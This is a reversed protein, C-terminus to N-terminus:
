FDLKLSVAATRSAGLWGGWGGSVGAIYREDLLNNVTFRVEYGNFLDGDTKGQIAVYLDMVDYADIRQTNAPDIWREGVHKNSLGARYQEKQWNASVVYMDEVSGYVTNGTYPAFDLYTSDNNTYSAYLSWNSNIFWNASLEIGDSEIGGVNIFDGVEEELFDIGTSDNDLQTIRNDFDVQYYTFTARLKEGNYRVGIDKNKATEPELGDVATPNNELDAQEIVIDKIAAYNEAYGAFVEVSDTIGWVIGTNPLFDSDSSITQSNFGTIKDKKEVDVYWQKGGIRISLDGIQITDELYYMFTEYPYERDYTIWYPTNDFDYSTRSDIIKHWDRSEERTRDEYWLGVRVENAIGQIETSWTLDSTFGFRQMEYHTHRYSGVPIANSGYCAPDAAPNGSTGGYPFTLSTQCNTAPTLANGNADVFYIKGLDSGGVVTNGSILESNGNTDNTVDVVYPPLWDGRGENDHYYPTVQLNVSSSLAFDFKVYALTNERLTSWGRRYLQDVFPIGTWDGTLRDWEDNQKYESLTVRQYNDEHTDDYSAYGTIKLSELETIFKGALHTRNSEGSEDIWANANADSYSLYATTNNFLLGTDYRVYFKQANFDGTTLNVRLGEEAKPDQTIFDLTGGLAEHSRSAIDATGQSVNVTELNLTDIFRNAKSGGGYNSGGNPIGDITMGIQQEDLSLQFGRISVTTSWDDGGFTDGENILVGPLNNIVALVSTLSAQQDLMDQNVLSNAFTTPKSLVYVEEIKDAAKTEAFAAPIITSAISFALANKRLANM